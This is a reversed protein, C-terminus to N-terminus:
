SRAGGKRGALVQSADFAVLKWTGDEDAFTLLCPGGKRGKACVRGDPLPTLAVALSLTGPIPTDPRYGYYDAVARFVEPRILVSGAARALPGSLLVGLGAAGDGMGAERSREVMVAQMEAELARRDVHAEFAARDDDRIAVLLAHVDPAAALQRTTACGTLLTLAALLSAARRLM